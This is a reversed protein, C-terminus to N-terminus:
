QVRIKWFLFSLLLLLSFIFIQSWNQNSNLNISDQEGILILGAWFLPNALNEDAKNLYSLKATHLAEAKDKHRLEDFFHNMIKSTSFDPIPWLSVMVSKAGAYNFSRALSAIGEGPKLQGLGTNCASLIVLDTCLHSHQIEHAYLNNKNNSSDPSLLITSYASNKSNLKAHSAFHLMQYDSIKNLLEKKLNENNELIHGKLKESISNIEQSAGVLPSLHSNSYNPKIGLYLQSAKQTTLNIEHLANKYSITKDHILYKLQHYELHNPKENIFTDFSLFSISKSPTIILKSNDEYQLHPAVLKNYFLYAFESYKEISSNTISNNYSTIKSDLSDVTTQLFQLQNKTISISFVEDNHQYYEIIIEDDKVSKQITDININVKQYKQAYYNPHIKELHKLLNELKRKQNFIKSNLEISTESEPDNNTFLLNQNQSIDLLLQEEQALLSDPIQTNNKANVNKLERKLLFSKEAEFFALAQEIYETNSTREYLEKSAKIGLFLNEDIKNFISLKATEHYYFDIIADSLKSSNITLQYLEKLISLDNTQQYQKWLIQEKLIYIDLLLTRSIIEDTFDVPTTNSLFLAKQALDLNEVSLEFNHKYFYNKALLYYSEALDYDKTGFINVAIQISKKLSKEANTHNDTEIHISALHNHLVTSLENEGNLKTNLQQAKELIYLASDYELTEIYTAGLNLYKWPLENEYDSNEFLAIVKKHIKKARNYHGTNTYSNALNSYTISNTFIDSANHLEFIKIAEKYYEQSTEFDRQTELAVGIANFLHGKYIINDAKHEDFLQLGLQYNELAKYINNSSNYASGLSFYSSVLSNYDIPIQKLAIALAKEQHRISRATNGIFSHYIGLAINNQIIKPHNAGLNLTRLELSEEAYYFASDMQGLRFKAVSLNYLIDAFEEIHQLNTKGFKLAIHGYISVKQIDNKSKALNCLKAHILFQDFNTKVHKAGQLLTNEAADVQGISLLSDTKLYYNEIHKQNQASLSCYFFLLLLLGNKMDTIKM